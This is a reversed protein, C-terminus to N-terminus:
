SGDSGPRNACELPIAKVKSHGFPAAAAAGPLLSRVHELEQQPDDERDVHRREPQEAEVLPACAVAVRADGLAPQERRARQRAAEARPQPHPDEAVLRLLGAEAPLQDDRRRDVREPDPEGPAVPRRGLLPAPRGPPRGTRRLRPQGRRAGERPFARERTWRGVSKAAKSDETLDKSSKSVDLEIFEYGGNAETANTCIADATSREEKPSVLYTELGGLNALDRELDFGLQRTPPALLVLAVVSEDRSAQDVALTCGARLGLFVLSASHIQKQRRLWESAGRVDRTALSWLKERGRADLEDWDYDKAVSEGHGRLDLALVALGERQLREAYLALQKRDGGADHVLVVAPVRVSTDRPLYFDAKLAYRDEAAPIEVVEVEGDGRDAPRPALPAPLSLAATPAAAPSTAPTETPPGAPGAAPLALLLALLM